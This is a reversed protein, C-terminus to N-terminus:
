GAQPDAVKSGPEIRTDEPVELPPVLLSGAGIFTNEGITTRAHNTADWNAFIVGAGVDSGAGLSSDGCYTLHGLRAGDGIEANKTEVFSGIRGDAGLVTGPRLRAYPGVEAGAGIVALEVQSRTIVAGAGIEADKCTTDPGIVADTAVSTAGQLQVGPLLTVDEAIDVDADIWTTAPDIITVGRLMWDHLIRQNYEHAAEALQARDNVGVTQWIDHTLYGGVRLGQGNAYSIVDTLYFENKANDSSLQAVGDRLVQADFVYIGSNIEKLKRQDPTADKEEVIAVVKDGARIIRGYGTPDSQRATLITVSNGQSRHAEVLEALTQGNLLPVDGYTVIVEGNLGDLSGLASRVADGTGLQEEQIAAVAQPAIEALHRGVQEREHGVVVVLREPELEEVADLSLSLLSRGGITHLLKSKKSRMRTGSGAALVIAAAVRRPQANM